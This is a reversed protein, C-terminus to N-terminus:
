IHGNAYFVLSCFHFHKIQEFQGGSHANEDGWTGKEVLQRPIFFAQICHFHGAIPTDEKFKNITIGINDIVIIIV